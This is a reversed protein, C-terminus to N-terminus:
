APFAHAPRPRADEHDLIGPGHQADQTERQLAGPERHLAGLGPGLAELPEGGSQKRGSAGGRSQSAAARAAAGSVGSIM